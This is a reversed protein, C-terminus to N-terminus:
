RFSGYKILIETATGVTGLYTNDRVPRRSTAEIRPPPKQQPAPEYPLRTSSAFSLDLPDRDYTHRSEPAYSKRSHGYDQSSEALGPYGSQRASTTRSDHFTDGDLNDYRSNEEEVPLRGASSTRTQDIELDLGPRRSGGYSDSASRKPNPSTVQAVSIGSDPKYILIKEVAPHTEEAPTPHSQLIRFQSANIRDSNEPARIPSGYAKAEARKRDANDPVVERYPATASTEAEKASLSLEKAKNRKEREERHQPSEGDGYLSVERSSDKFAHPLHKERQSSRQQDESAEIYPGVEREVPSASSANRPKEDKETKRSQLTDVNLGVSRISLPLARYYGEGNRLQTGNPHHRKENNYDDSEVFIKIKPTGKSDFRNKNPKIFIEYRPEENSLTENVNKNRSLMLEIIEVTKKPQRDATMNRASYASCGLLTLAIVLATTILKRLRAMQFM